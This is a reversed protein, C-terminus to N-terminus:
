AQHINKVSKRIPRQETSLFESAAHIPSRRSTAHYSDLIRDRGVEVTVTGPTCFHTYGPPTARCLSSRKWWNKNRKEILLFTIWTNSSSDHGSGFPKMENLASTVVIRSYAHPRAANSHLYWNEESKHIRIYLSNRFNNGCNSTPQVKNHPVLVGVKIRSSWIEVEAPYEGVRM